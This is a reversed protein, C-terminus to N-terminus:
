YLTCCELESLLTLIVSAHNSCSYLTLTHTHSPFPSCVGEGRGRVGVGEGEGWVWGEGLVPSSWGTQFTLGSRNPESDPITERLDNLLNVQLKM